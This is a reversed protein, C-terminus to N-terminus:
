RLAIFFRGARPVYDRGTDFSLVVRVAHGLIAQRDVFGFYRSDASNDRNDGMMFYHGAPVTVPGFDRMAAREPLLRIPHVWGDLNELALRAARDGEQTSLYALTHGNIVLRDDRMALTDGPLGVVRKVLRRGDAPSYFVVIDGRHPDAWQALHWTTFPLKLDYALRNVLILDGVEITPRMSGSPVYNWDAIVSRSGFILVALMLLSWSNQLLRGLRHRMGSGRM